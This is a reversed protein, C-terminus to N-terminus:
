QLDLPKTSNESWAAGFLLLPVLAVISWYHWIYKSYVNSTKSEVPQNLASQCHVEYPNM